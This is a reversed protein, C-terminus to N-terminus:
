NRNERAFDIIKEVFADNIVVFNQGRNERFELNRIPVALMENRLTRYTLKMYIAEVRSGNGSFIVDEVVGLRDKSSSRVQAGILNKLNIQNNGDGSATEVQSLLTPYLEEISAATLDLIYGRNKPDIEANSFSLPVPQGLNLRDFDIIFSSINGGRNIVVGDVKGIVKNKRDIVRKGIVDKSTQYDRNQLIDRENLEFLREVGHITNRAEVSSDFVFIVFAAAIFLGLFRM